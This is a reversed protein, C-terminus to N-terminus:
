WFPVNPVVFFELKALFIVSYISDSKFNQCVKKTILTVPRM